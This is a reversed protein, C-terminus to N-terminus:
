ANAVAELEAILARAANADAHTTTVRAREGDHTVTFEPRYRLREAHETYIRGFHGSTYAAWSLMLRIETTTENM